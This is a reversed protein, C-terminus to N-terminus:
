AILLACHAHSLASVYEGRSIHLASPAYLWSAPIRPPPKLIFWSSM